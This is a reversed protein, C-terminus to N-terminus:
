IHELDAACAPVDLIFTSYGVALYRGVEGAVEEYSGVLYPCFTKYNEFPWLWYTGRKEKIAAHIDSLTKHWVSDSVKMALTHMIQGGRDPPFRRDAEEWAEDASKRAIIGVRIGCGRNRQDASTSCQEPPEPYKIPVAG